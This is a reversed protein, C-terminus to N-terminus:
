PKCIGCSDYGANIADERTAFGVKNADSIKEAASCGPTHFKLSSSNGIYMAEAISSTGTSPKATSSTSSNNVHPNEVTASIAKFDDVYKTNPPYTAVVAYDEELLKKNLMYGDVYVYALFRGYMDREQVDFELTVYKGEILSKTYESATKGAETNKSADPHVSEPTDIGILRVKEEKGNYDIVFTDGDVVRVVKYSNEQAATETQKTTINVTQTKDDWVVNCNLNEAVFRAPVLTRGDIIQAPVDLTKVKGNVVANKDNIVLKIATTPSNATVTQTDANWEVTAGLTELIARAPVLTRGDVIAPPVDLNLPKNNINLNIAAFANTAMLASILATTIIKKYRM